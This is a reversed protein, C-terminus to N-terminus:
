NNLISDETGGTELHGFTLAGALAPGWQIKAKSALPTLTETTDNTSAPKTLPTM